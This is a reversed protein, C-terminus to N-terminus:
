RLHGTKVWLITDTEVWPEHESGDATVWSRFSSEKRVFRGGTEKGNSWGDQWKGDVLMGM